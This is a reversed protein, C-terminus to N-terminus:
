IWTDQDDEDRLYDVSGDLTMPSRDSDFSTNVPRSVITHGKRLTPARSMPRPYTRAPPYSPTTTPYRTEMNSTADLARGINHPDIMIWSPAKQGQSDGDWNSEPLAVSAENTRQSSKKGLVAAPRQGKPPLLNRASDVARYFRDIWFTRPTEAREIPVGSNYKESSAGGEVLNTRGDPTGSRGAMNLFAQGPAVLSSFTSGFTEKRQAFPRTTGADLFSRDRNHSQEEEPESEIIHPVASTTGRFQKEAYEDYLPHDQTWRWFRFKSTDGQASSTGRWGLYRDRGGSHWLVVILGILAFALWGGLLIAYVNREARIAREFHDILSGVVGDDSSNTGSGSGVAAATIPSVIENMSSNSLLIIDASMTPLTIQAHESIWTLGQELNTIKSGIICYIFTNIPDYLITGGFSANLAAFFDEKARGQKSWSM